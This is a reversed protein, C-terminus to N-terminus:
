RRVRRGWGSHICVGKQHYGKLKVVGPPCSRGFINQLEREFNYVLPNAMDIALQQIDKTRMIFPNLSFGSSNVFYGGGIDSSVINGTQGDDDKRLRIMGVKPNIDLIKISQQVWDGQETYLWDEESQLVYEGRIMSVLKLWGKDQMAQHNYVILEYHPYTICNLLSLLTLDLLDLRDSSLVIISLLPLKPTSM